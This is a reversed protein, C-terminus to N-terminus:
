TICTDEALTKPSNNIYTLIETPTETLNNPITSIEIEPSPPEPTILTSLSHHRTNWPNAISNIPLM